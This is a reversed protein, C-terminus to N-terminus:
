KQGGELPTEAPEPDALKFRVPFTFQVRVTKGEHSGPKWDSMLKSVRMAEDGCGMGPDRLLQFDSLRGDKNVVFRIVAMGEVGNKRAEEPYKINNSIFKIINRDSCKKREWSEEQQCDGFRPMIDVVKFVEGKQLLPPPPPTDVVVHIPQLPANLGSSIAELPMDPTAADLANLDPASTPAMDFSFLAVLLGVVPIVALFKFSSRKRSSKSSLM